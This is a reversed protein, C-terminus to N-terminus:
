FLGVGLGVTSDATDTSGVRSGARNSGIVASGVRYGVVVGVLASGFSHLTDVYGVSDGTNVAAGILLLPGVAGVGNGTADGARDGLARAVEEGSLARQSVPHV